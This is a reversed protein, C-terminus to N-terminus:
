QRNDKAIIAGPFNDGAQFNVILANSFFIRLFKMTFLLLEHMIETRWIVLKGYYSAFLIVPPVFLVINLMKSIVFIKSYQARNQLLTTLYVRLFPIQGKESSKGKKISLFILSKKKGNQRM